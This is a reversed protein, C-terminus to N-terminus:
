ILLIGFKRNLIINKLYIYKITNAGNLFEGQKGQNGPIDGNTWELHMEFHVLLSSFGDWRGLNHTMQSNLADNFGGQAV